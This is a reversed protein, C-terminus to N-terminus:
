ERRMDNNMEEGNFAYVIKCNPCRYLFIGQNSFLFELKKGCYMPIVQGGVDKMSRCTIKM